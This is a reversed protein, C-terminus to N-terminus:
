KKTPCNIILKQVTSCQARIPTTVATQKSNLKSYQIDKQKTTDYTQM